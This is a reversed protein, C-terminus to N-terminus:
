EWDSITFVNCSILQGLSPSGWGLDMIRSMSISVPASMFDVVLFVTTIHLDTHKICFTWM